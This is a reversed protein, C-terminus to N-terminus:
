YVIHANKKDKLIYYLFITLAAEKQNIKLCITQEM